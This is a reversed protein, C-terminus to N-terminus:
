APTPHPPSCSFHPMRQMVQARLAYRQCQHGRVSSPTTSGYGMVQQPGANRDTRNGHLLEKKIIIVIIAPAHLVFFGSFNSREGCCCCCSSSCRHTPSRPAMHSRRTPFSACLDICLCQALLAAPQPGEASCPRVFAARHPPHAASVLPSSRQTTAGKHFFTNKYNFILQINKNVVM